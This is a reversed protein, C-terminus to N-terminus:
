PVLLGVAVQVLLFVLVSAVLLMVVSGLYLYCELPFAEQAVLLTIHFNTSPNSLIGGCKM